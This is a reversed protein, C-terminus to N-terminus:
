DGSVQHGSLCDGGSFCYSDYPWYKHQYLAKTLSGDRRMAELTQRLPKVWEAQLAHHAVYLDARATFLPLALQVAAADIGASYMAFLLSHETSAMADLRGALLMKLGQEVDTLAVRTIGPHTDFAQGYKSGRVQGINQGNFDDLSRYEKSGAKVVIVIRENLVFGLSHAIREAQPSVFMVAIDADGKEIDQIVRPYPELQNNFKINARTFLSNQFDVLIGKNAKETDSFGWPQVTSTVVLPIAQETEQNVEAAVTLSSFTLLLAVPCLLRFAPLFIKSLLRFLVFKM